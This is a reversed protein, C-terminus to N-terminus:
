RNTGIRRYAVANLAFATLKHQRVGCNLIRDVGVIVVCGGGSQQMNAGDVADNMFSNTKGEGGDTGDIGLSTNYITMYTNTGSDDTRSLYTSIMVEYMYGDNPLYDSLDLTYEGVATTTSLVKYNSIWQGDFLKSSGDLAELARSANIVNADQITEGVYYYLSGNGQAYIFKFLDTTGGATYSVAVIDGKKCELNERINQGSIACHVITALSTTQNKISLWQNTGNTGKGVAFWGNAPATYTSGSANLTLDDCKDSPLSESGDYIPLRFTSDATNIVYDYDGYTDTSAKVSVGEVNETGNYIKLLWEYFSKYVTGSHFAGNSILWSANKPESEFYQSMGLFFPNNLEIERTVDVTEEVGTAVQIFYSYQIAEQQVPADDQYTPSSNSANFVNKVAGGGSSTGSLSGIFKEETFAGTATSHSVGGVSGTINPLSEAKVSGILSLDQLGNVNVVKPLRITGLADDIVFKGCQGLKSNTVEAQWNTETTALNPYLAVREKVLKAFSQFQSQSIVQGNLYRRLNKSEDIGLAAFAIDGIELGGGDKGDEGKDGKDGKEGKVVNMAFLGSADIPTDEPANAIAYALDAAGMSSLSGGLEKVESQEGEAWIRSREASSTAETAANSAVEELQVTKDEVFAVFENKTAETQTNFDAVTQSVTNATDEARDAQEKALAVQETATQAYGAMEKEAFETISPKVTGEFYEDIVPTAIQDVVEAVIPKAYDQIYEDIEPKSKNDVYDQIEKQGSVIYMLSADLDLTVEDQWYVDIQAINDQEPLNVEITQGEHIDAVIMGEQM